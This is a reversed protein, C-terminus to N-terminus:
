LIEMQKSKKSKAKESKIRELLVSAPEDNPDQPVLKGKFASKLISQRLSQSQMSNKNVIEEVEDAISFYRDIEQVILCQEKVPILPFPIQEVDSKRISPVTTARSLDGLKITSLYYFMLADLLPRFVKVGMVNNDILSPQGLLARRNLHIAEGIKAFVVTGKELPKGNLKNCDEYSIYNDAETTVTKGNLVTNSIDKVKLFPIYGSPNGQFSKPFGIGSTIKSINGIYEWKWEKPL